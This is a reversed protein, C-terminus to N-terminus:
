LDARGYIIGTSTARPHDFTVIGTDYDVTGVRRGSRDFLEGDGNDLVDGFGISVSGPTIAGPAQTIPEDTPIFRGGPFPYRVAIGCFDWKAGPIGGPITAAELFTRIPPIAQRAITGTNIQTVRGIYASRNILGSGGDDIIYCDAKM